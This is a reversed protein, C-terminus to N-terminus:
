HRLPRVMRKTGATPDRPRDKSRPINRNRKRHDTRENTRRFRFLADHIPDNRTANNQRGFDEKSEKGSVKGSQHILLMMHEESEQIKGGFPIFYIRKYSKRIHVLYNPTRNDQDKGGHCSDNFPILTINTPRFITAQATAQTTSNNATAKPNNSGKEHHQQSHKRATAFLKLCHYEQKTMRRSLWDREEGGFAGNRIGSDRHDCPDHQKENYSSYIANEEEPGITPLPELM